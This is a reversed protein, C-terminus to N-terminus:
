ETIVARDTLLTVQNDLVQLFGGEVDVRVRGGGVADVSVTGQVLSAMVPEHDAMIGIEGDPTRAVVFEADGSWALGDPSVIDVRFPKPM